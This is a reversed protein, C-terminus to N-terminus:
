RPKGTRAIHDCDTTTAAIDRDLQVLERRLQDCKSAVDDYRPNSAAEQCSVDVTQYGWGLPMRGDPTGDVARGRNMRRHKERVAFGDSLNKEVSSKRSILGDL